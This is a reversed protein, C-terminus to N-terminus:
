WVFRGHAYIPGFRSFAEAYKCGTVGGRGSCYVARNKAQQECRLRRAASNQSLAAVAAQKREFYPTVDILIDPAWGSEEPNQPELGFVPLQRPLAPLGGCDAGGASAIAAARVVAAGVYGRDPTQLDAERAATLIFDPRVGRLLVALRECQADDLELPLAPLQWYAVGSVGIDALAETIAPRRDAGDLDSLVLAEIRCGEGAYKMIVGACGEAIDLARAAIILMTQKNM